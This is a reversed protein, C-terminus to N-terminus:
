KDQGELCKIIHNVVRDAVSVTGFELEKIIEQRKSKLEDREYILIDDLREELEQLNHVPYYGEIVRKGFENYGTSYKSILHVVPKETPLYECLFSCCDTVLLDSTRFLDFYDGGEIVQANPLARWANFYGEMEEITMLKNNIISKYLVPHPKLVFEYEPHNKAYEYFYAYNWDFTGFKLLSKRSFSHHPAWIIRKKGDTKWVNGSIPRLYADTKMAGGVPINEDIFGRQIYSPRIYPNDLFYRWLQRYFPLTFEYTGTTISAGYSSHCSLAFKATNYPAHKSKLAWPEAYFIIDPRFTELDIYKDKKSDYAYAVNMGRSAFFAYNDELKQKYNLYAYKKELLETSISVLVLPEFHENEEFARFLSQYSWKANDDCLFCVRLKRKHYEKQLKPLLKAYRQHAKQTNKRDRIRVDINKCFQCFKKRDEKTPFIWAILKAFTHYRM